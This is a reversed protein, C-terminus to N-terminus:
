NQLPHKRNKLPLDVPRDQKHSEYVALIMELAARGDRISGLPERDKEIAEILDAVILRNAFHASSDKLPEPQGIGASTIPQWNSKGTAPLWSPEDLIFAAPLSGTHLHIVGKSGFLQIAFRRGAGDKARHTGFTATVGGDFGYTAAIRDGVIPGMGEGGQRVDGPLV